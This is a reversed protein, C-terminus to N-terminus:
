CMTARADCTYVSIRILAAHFSAFDSCVSVTCNEERYKFFLACICWHYQVYENKRPPFTNELVIIWVWFILSVSSSRRMGVGGDLGVWNLRSGQLTRHLTKTGLFFVFLFIFNPWSCTTVAVWAGEVHLVCVRQPVSSAWDQHSTQPRARRM